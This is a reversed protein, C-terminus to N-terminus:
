LNPDHEANWLKRHFTFLLASFMALFLSAAWTEQIAQRFKAPSAERTVLETRMNWRGHGNFYTATGRVEFCIAKYAVLTSCVAVAFAWILFRQSRSRAVALAIGFAIVAVVTIRTTANGVILLGVLFVAGAALGAYNSRDDTVLTLVFIRLRPLPGFHVRRRHCGRCRDWGAAFDRGM